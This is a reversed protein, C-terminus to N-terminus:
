GVGTQRQAKREARELVSKQLRALLDASDRYKVV